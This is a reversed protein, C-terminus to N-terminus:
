DQSGEVVYGSGLCAPCTIDYSGRKVSGDGGCVECLDPTEPEDLDCVVLTDLLDAEESNLDRIEARDSENWVTSCDECKWDGFEVNRLTATSGCEPCTLGEAYIDGADDFYGVTM